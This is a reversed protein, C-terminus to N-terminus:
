QHHHRHTELLWLACLLLEKAATDSLTFLGHLFLSVSGLYGWSEIDGRVVGNSKTPTTVDLPFPESDDSSRNALPWRNVILTYMPATACSSM